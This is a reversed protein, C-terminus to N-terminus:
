NQCNFTVISFTTTNLLWPIWFVATGTDPLHKGSHKPHRKNRDTCFAAESVTESGM